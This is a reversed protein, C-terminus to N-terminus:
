LLKRVIEIMMMQLMLAIFFSHFSFLSFFFPQFTLFYIHIIIKRARDAIKMMMYTYNCLLVSVPQSFDQLVDFSVNSQYVISKFKYDCEVNANTWSYISAISSYQLIASHTVSHLSSLYVAVFFAIESIFNTWSNKLLHIFHKTEYFSSLTDTLKLTM